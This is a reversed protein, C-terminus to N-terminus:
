DVRNHQSRGDTGRGARVSLSWCSKVWESSGSRQKVLSTGFQCAIAGDKMDFLHETFHTASGPWRAM